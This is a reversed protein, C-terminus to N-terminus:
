RVILQSVPCCECNKRHKHIKNKYKMFCWCTCKYDHIQVSIQTNWIFCWLRSRRRCSRKVLILLSKYMQIQTNECTYKQIQVNTNTYKMFCWLRSTRRCSPCKRKVLLSALPLSLLFHIPPFVWKTSCWLINIHNEGIFWIITHFVNKLKSLYM